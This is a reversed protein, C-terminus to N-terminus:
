DLSGLQVCIAKICFNRSKATFHWILSFLGAQEASSLDHGLQRNYAATFLVLWDQLLGRGAAIGQKAAAAAIKHTLVLLIADADAGAYVESPSKAVRLRVTLLRLRRQLVYRRTVALM